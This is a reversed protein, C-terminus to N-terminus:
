RSGREMLEVFDNGAMSAPLGPFARGLKQYERRIAWVIHRALICAGENAALFAAGVAANRITAGVMPYLSAIETFDIGKDLEPAARLHTRWLAIRQDVTPEPLEVIFELRRIFAQDVNQRLNTSLITLGEFRELRSLLYATELNAYRDHADSVDTRKGFLADAEDFLLVCQSREAIDFV